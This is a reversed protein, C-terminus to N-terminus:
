PADEDAGTGLARDSAPAALASACEDVAPESFSTLKAREIALAAVADRHRRLTDLGEPPPPSDAELPAAATM